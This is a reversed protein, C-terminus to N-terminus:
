KVSTLVAKEFAAGLMADFPFKQTVFVATVDTKPDIFFFTSAAGGWTWRGGGRPGYETMVPANLGFGLGFRQPSEYAPSLHQQTMFAVTKPKLIRVGDLEGHREMATMFRTYDHLTSWLGGGGSEFGPKLAETRGKAYHAKDVELAGPMGTVIPMIPYDAPPEFSTSTMGLPSFIHEGLYDGFTQGAVVEVVRGLVDTNLGYTFSEGPDHVLPLEAMAIAAQELNTTDVFTNAYAAKFSPPASFDYALGSTHTLLDRITIQRSAPRANEGVGVTMHGFEPIYQSVPDDIGLKGQEVLQMIATSTIAKTMSYIRLITDTRMPADSGPEHNGFAEFFVTEGGKTVQAACGVVNGDDVQQQMFARLHDLQAVAIAQVLCIALAPVIMRRLLTTM